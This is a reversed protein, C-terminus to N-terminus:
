DRLHTAIVICIWRGTGKSKSKSKTM